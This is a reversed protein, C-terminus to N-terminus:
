KAAAPLPLLNSQTYKKKTKNKIVGGQNNGFFNPPETMPDHNNHLNVAHM